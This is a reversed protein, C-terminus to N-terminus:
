IYEVDVDAITIYPYSAANSAPVPVKQCWSSIFYKLLQLRKILENKCRLRVNLTAVNRNQPWCGLKLRRVDRRITTVLCIQIYPSNM